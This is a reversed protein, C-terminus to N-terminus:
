TADLIEIWTLHHVQSTTIIMALKQSSFNGGCIWSNDIMPSRLWQYPKPLPSISQLFTLYFHQAAESNSPHDIFRDGASARYWVANDTFMDPAETHPIWCLMDTWFAVIWDYSLHEQNSALKTTSTFHRDAERILVICDTFSWNCHSYMDVTLTQFRHRWFSFWTTHLLMREWELCLFM